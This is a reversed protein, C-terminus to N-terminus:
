DAALTRYRALGKVDLLHRCIGGGFTSKTWTEADGGTSPASPVVVIVAYDSDM